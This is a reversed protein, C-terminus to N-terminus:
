ATAPLLAGVPTLRESPCRWLMGMRVDLSVPDFRDLGSGPYFTMEGFRPGSALDYLDVRVFDFDRALKEAADIMVDLARPRVPDGGESARSVRRWNPDMVTWRHQSGRGFHAQIYGVRGGFVYFKYDVPLARAEGIFPEILAGRPIGTYLWEDLWTGYTTRVWRDVRRQLATTDHSQSWLFITQNCGHRSKVVCPPAWAFHRPIKTGSWLTPTVWDEGLADAVFQKVRVKDALAPLRPDRDHLKRWQVLETFRRPRSLDPWRGHCWFYTLAIRARASLAAPALPSMHDPPM